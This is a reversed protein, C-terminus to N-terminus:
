AGFSKLIDRGAIDSDAAFFVDELALRTVSPQILTESCVVCPAICRYHLIGIEERAGALRLSKPNYVLETPYNHQRNDKWGVLLWLGALLYGTTTLHPGPLEGAQVPASCGTTELTIGDM